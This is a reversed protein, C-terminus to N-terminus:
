CTSTNLGTPPRGTNSQHFLRMLVWMCYACVCVCVCLCVCLSSTWIQGHGLILCVCVFMDVCVCVETGHWRSYALDQGASTSLVSDLDLCCLDMVPSFLTWTQVTFVAKM